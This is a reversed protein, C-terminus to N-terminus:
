YKSKVAGLLLTALSNTGLSYIVLKMKPKKRPFITLNIAISM